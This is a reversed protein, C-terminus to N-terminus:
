GVFLFPKNEDQKPNSLATVLKLVADGDDHCPFFSLKKKSRYDAGINERRAEEGFYEHEADAELITAKGAEINGSESGIDEGDVKETDLARTLLNTEHVCSMINGASEMCKRCPFRDKLTKKRM